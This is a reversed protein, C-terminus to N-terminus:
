FLCVHVCVCVCRGEEMIIVNPRDIFVKKIEQQVDDAKVDIHIVFWTRDRGPTDDLADVLRPVCVCM